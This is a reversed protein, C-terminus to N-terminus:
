WAVPWDALAREDVPRMPRAALEDLRRVLRVRTDGPHVVEDVRMAGAAGYVSNDQMIQAAREEIRARREEPALGELDRGELVSAAAHPDMFGVRAGPWALVLDSGMGMGGLCATALGYSKRVIVSLIPVSAMAVAQHLLMAKYLLGDHEVNRGVLFGPTDQLFVVPLGFADCTCLLRVINDCAKPVIAGAMTLPQSAVIGVSHGGLWGLGTLVGAGAQPRLELFAGDDLLRRQNAPVLSALQEDRAPEAQRRRQPPASWANPPLHSLFRRVTQAADAFTEAGVDIQNTLRLHVDMGGLADFGVDEGTAQRIVAPSTVALCTGTIQVSLDSLASVLSSGGFSQGIIVSVMPIRRRRRSMYAMPDLRSHGTSGLVDPIRAGGTQGLYVFPNGANQAQEFLRHVKANAVMATSARKVSADDGVVTVPRGGVTGHGGVKGDGPTSSAHEPRESHALTGIEHFSEPDLLEEICTRVDPAPGGARAAGTRRARAESQRRALEAIAGDGTEPGTVRAEGDRALARAGTGPSTM